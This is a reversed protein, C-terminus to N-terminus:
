YEGILANLANKLKLLKKNEEPTDKRGELIYEIALDHVHMKLAACIKELVSLNPERQNSEIMSIYAMSLGVMQALQMQTHGQSKRYKRIIKGVRM